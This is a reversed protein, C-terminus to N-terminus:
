GDDATRVEGAPIMLLGERKPRATGFVTGDAMTVTDHPGPAAIRVLGSDGYRYDAKEDAELLDVGGSTVPDLGFFRLRDTERPLLGDLSIVKWTGDALRLLRQIRTRDAGKEVGHALVWLTGEADLLVDRLLVPAGALGTLVHPGVEAWSAGDFHSLSRESSVWLGGSPSVTPVIRPRIPLKPFRARTAPFVQEMTFSVWGGDSRLDLTDAGAARDRELEYPEAPLRWVSGDPLAVSWRDRDRDYFWTGSPTEELLSWEGDELRWVGDAYVTLSGDENAVIREIRGQPDGEGVKVEGPQGLALVAQHRAVWLTGDPALAVSVVPDLKHGAGDDIVRVIGGDLLEGTLRLDGVEAMVLPDTPSPTGPARTPQPLLGDRAVQWVDRVREAIVETAPRGSGRPTVSLRLDEISLVAEVHNGPDDPRGEGRLEIRVDGEYAQGLPTQLFPGDAYVWEGEAHGDYTRLQSVWWDSGDAAFDWDMRQEVGHELWEVELTWYRRDGPFSDVMLRSGATTFLEDGIALRFAAARFDVVDTQWHLDTPVASPGAILAPRRDDSAVLTLVLAASMLVVVLLPAVTLNWRVPLPSREPRFRWPHVQSTGRAAEVARSRSARPDAPPSDTAQLWSSIEPALREDSM